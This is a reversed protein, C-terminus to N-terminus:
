NLHSNLWEILELTKDFINNAKVEDVLQSIKQKYTPYRGEIYYSTLEALLERQLDNPNLDLLGELYVLSHSRPAEKEHKKLYIAKLTKEAAQQCMFVTYVFKKSQLMCKATDLDYRANDLWHDVKEKIDM